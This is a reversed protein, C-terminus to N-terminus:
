PQASTTSTTTSTPTVTTATTSTTTSTSTTTTECADAQTLDCGEGIGTDPDCCNLFGDDIKDAEYDHMTCRTRVALCVSNRCARQCIPEAIDDSECADACREYCDHVSTLRNVCRNFCIEGTLSGAHTTTTKPETTTPVVMTTTPGEVTTTTSQPEVTTSTTTSSTTTTVTLDGRDCRRCAKAAIRQQHLNLPQGACLFPVGFATKKFASDPSSRLYKARCERVCGLIVTCRGGVTPQCNKSNLCNQFDPDARAADRLGVYTACAAAFEPDAACCKNKNQGPHCTSDSLCPLRGFATVPLVLLVALAVVPRIRVTGAM